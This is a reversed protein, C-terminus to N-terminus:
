WPVLRGNDLAVDMLVIKASSGLVGWRSTRLLGEAGLDPFPGEVLNLLYSPPEPAGGVRTGARLAEVAGASDGRASGLTVCSLCKARKKNGAARKDVVETPRPHTCGATSRKQERGRLDREERPRTAGVLVAVPRRLPFAARRARAAGSGRGTRASEEAEDIVTLLVEMGPNEVERRRGGLWFESPDGPEPSLM